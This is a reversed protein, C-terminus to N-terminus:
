SRRFRSSGGRRARARGPFDMMEKRLSPEICVDGAVTAADILDCVQRVNAPVFIGYNAAAFAWGLIYGTEALLQSDVVIPPAALACLVGQRQSPLRHLILLKETFPPPPHRVNNTDRKTLETTLWAGWRKRWRPEQRAGLSHPFTNYFHFASQPSDDTFNISRAVTLGSSATDLLRQRLAVALDKRAREPRTGGSGVWQTNHVVEVETLERRQEKRRVNPLISTPAEAFRGVTLLPELGRDHLNGRYAILNSV